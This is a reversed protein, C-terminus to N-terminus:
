HHGIGPRRCVRMSPTAQADPLRRPVSVTGVSLRHRSAVGAIWVRLGCLNNIVYAYARFVACIQHVVMSCRVMFRGVARVGRTMQGADPLGCVPVLM